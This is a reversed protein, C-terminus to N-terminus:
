KLTFYKKTKNKQDKQLHPLNKDKIRFHKNYQNLTHKTIKNKFININCILFSNHNLLHKKEV